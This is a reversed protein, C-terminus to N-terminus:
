SRLKWAKKMMAWKPSLAPDNKANRMAKNIFIWLITFFVAGFGVALVLQVRKPSSRREPINATDIPFIIQSKRAEDIRAAEYQKIMSSLLTSQVLPDRFPRQAIVEIQQAFFDRRLHAEELSMRNMVARFPKLYANALKAATDPSQDKAEIVILGSKKDTTIKVLSSLIKRTDELSKTQYLHTLNLETIITDQVTNSQMFAVYMETPSKSLSGALGGVGGLQDLVASSSNSQKDPVVYTAKATYMPTLYLSIIAAISACILPLGFLLWKEEGLTQILGLLDITDNADSALLDQQSPLNQSENM